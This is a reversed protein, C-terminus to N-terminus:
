QQMDTPSPGGKAQAAQREPDNWYLDGKPRCFWGGTPLSLCAMFGGAMVLDHQPGCVDHPAGRLCVDLDATVKPTASQSPQQSAQPSTPPGLTSNAVAPQCYWFSRRDGTEISAKQTIFAMCSEMSPETAMQRPVDTGFAIMMVLYVIHTM